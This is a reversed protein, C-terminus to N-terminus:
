SGAPPEIEVPEGWNTFEITSDGSVETEGESQPVTAEFEFEMRLPTGDPALYLDLSDLTGEGGAERIQATEYPIPRVARFRLEQGGDAEVAEVFELDGPAGAYRFVDVIEDGNIAERSTATWDDDNQKVWADDGLIVLSLTEGAIELSGAADKGSVDLDYTFDAEEDGTRARGEQRLHFANDDSEALRYFSALADDAEGTAPSGSASAAAAASAGPMTASPTGTSSGCGALGVVLVILTAIRKM